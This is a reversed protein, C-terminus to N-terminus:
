YNYGGCLISRWWGYAYYTEKIWLEQGPLYRPKIYNIGRDYSFKAYGDEFGNFTYEDPSENIEKLGNMRRTQLKSGDLLAKVMPTSMLIPKDKM